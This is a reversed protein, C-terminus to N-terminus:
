RRVKRRCGRATPLPLPPSGQRKAAVWDIHGQHVLRLNLLKRASPSTGPHPIRSSGELHDRRGPVVGVGGESVDHFHGHIVCGSGGHAVLFAWFGGLVVSGLRRDCLAARTEGLGRLLHRQQRGPPCANEDVVVPGCKARIPRRGRQTRATNASGECGRTTNARCNRPKSKVSPESAGKVSAM